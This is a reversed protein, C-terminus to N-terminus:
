RADQEGNEAFLGLQTDGNSYVREIGRWARIRANAKDVYGADSDCGLFRRGTNLCAIATTGSGMFPDLVLEGPQTYTRILYEYLEVDKQTPHIKKDSNGNPFTLISTPFREGTNVTTVREFKHYVDTAGSRTATYPEGVGMQPTYPAAVESFVLVNEHRKLPKRNADLFGTSAVKDWIWEYRFWAPNSMVLASTFPQSATTVLAGGMKLVRKSSAWWRVLDVCTNWSCATTGYPMDTIVADVTGADVTDMFAFCDAIEVQM